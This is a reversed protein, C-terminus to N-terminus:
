SLRVTLLVKVIPIQSLKQWMWHQPVSIQLVAAMKLPEVQHLKWAKNSLKDSVFYEASVQKDPMDSEM